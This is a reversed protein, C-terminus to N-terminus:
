LDIINCKLKTTLSDKFYINYNSALCGVVILDVLNQVMYIQPVKTLKKHIM